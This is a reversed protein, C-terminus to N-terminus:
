HFPRFGSWPLRFQEFLSQKTAEWQAEKEEMLALLRANEADAHPAQTLSPLPRHPPLPSKNASDVLFAGLLLAVALWSPQQFNLAKHPQM